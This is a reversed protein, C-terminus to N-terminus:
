ATAEAQARYKPGLERFYARRGEATQRWVGKSPEIFGRRIFSAIPGFQPRFNAVPLREGEVLRKAIRFQAPSM